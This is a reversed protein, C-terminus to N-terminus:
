NLLHEPGERQVTRFPFSTFAAAPRICLSRASNPHNSASDTNVLTLQSPVSLFHAELCNLLNQIKTVSEQYESQVTSEAVIGGGGWCSITGHSALLTRITISSDMHGAADLYFMSSCYIGRQAEELEDIIQM